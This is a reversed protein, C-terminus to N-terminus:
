MQFQTDAGKEQNVETVVIAADGVAESEVDAKDQAEHTINQVIIFHLSEKKSPRKEDDESFCLDRDDSDTSIETESDDAEADNHIQSILAIILGKLNADTHGEIETDTYMPVPATM